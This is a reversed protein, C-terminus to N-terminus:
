RERKAGFAGIHDATDFVGWAEGHDPGHFNGALRDSGATGTAFAGDDLAMDAWGPADIAHGPVDIAVGVRPQSLDAVTVTATGQLREFGGTPSAEAIGRWTASGTGAPNTGSVDGLVYARAQTFDGSFATEGADGELAGSGLELAAFGHEGWFGYGLVTLATVTVGAVSEAMPGFADRTAATDFGDRSDLSAESVGAALGLMDEVAIAAGDQAVCRAGSCSLTEASAGDLTEGGGFLAYRSHLSGVLLTDARDLIDGLRTLPTDPEDGTDPTETEDDTDPVDPEDDTDPTEPKDDTDPPPTEGDTVPPPSADTQLSGGSCAGLALAAAALAAIPLTRVRGSLLVDILTGIM